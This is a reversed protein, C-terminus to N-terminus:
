EVLERHRKCALLGVGDSTAAKGWCFDCRPSAIFLIKIRDEMRCLWKMFKLTM